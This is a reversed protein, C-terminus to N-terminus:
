VSKIRNGPLGIDLAKQKLFDLLVCGLGISLTDLSLTDDISPVIRVECLCNAGSTSSSGNRDSLGSVLHDQYTFLVQDNGAHSSINAQDRRHQRHLSFLEVDLDTVSCTASLIIDESGAVYATM